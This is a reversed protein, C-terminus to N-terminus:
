LYAVPSLFNTLADGWVVGDATIRFYAVLDIRTSSDATSRMPYLRIRYLGHHQLLHRYCPSFRSDFFLASRVPIGSSVERPMVLFGALTRTDIGRPIVRWHEGDFVELGHYRPMATHFETASHNHIAFYVTLNALDLDTIAIFVDNEYAYPAARLPEAISLHRFPCARQYRIHLGINGGIVLLLCLMIIKKIKTM